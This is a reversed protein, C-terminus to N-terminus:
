PFAFLARKAVPVRGNADQLAKFVVSADLQKDAVEPREMLGKLKMHMNQKQAQAMTDADIPMSAKAVKAKKAPPSAATDGGEENAATANGSAEHVAKRDLLTRKAAPVSGNADQLAKFVVSADLQKDAIDPREMLMKLKKHMNEKKAEAMVQKDDETTERIRNPDGSNEHGAKAKKRERRLAAAGKTKVGGAEIFAAFDTAYKAQAAVFATQYPAKEADSLAKWTAGALKMIVGVAQGPCQQQFDPRKQTMFRGFAGGAPKKPQQIESAEAQEAM